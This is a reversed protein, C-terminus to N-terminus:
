IWLSSNLIRVALFAASRRSPFFFGLVAASRTQAESPSPQRPLRRGEMGERGRKKHQKKREGVRSLSKVKQKQLLKGKKQLPNTVLSSLTPNSFFILGVWDYIPRIPDSEENKPIFGFQDLDIM